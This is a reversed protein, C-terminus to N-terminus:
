LIDEYDPIVDSDYLNRTKIFLAKIQKVYGCGKYPGRDYFKLLLLLFICLGFFPFNTASGMMPGHDITFPTMITEHNVRGAKKYLDTM